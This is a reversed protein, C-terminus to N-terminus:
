RYELRVTPQPDLREMLLQLRSGMQNLLSGFARSQDSWIRPNDSLDAMKAAVKVADYYNGLEDVLGAQLAQRGTMIRGDCVARARAEDMKRGKMVAALFQQYADDISSQLLAREEKTLPRTPNGMDKYTGSKIVDVEVGIKRMLGQVNSAQMVVGISGTITGPDAVIRDAASALYYGGSAAVEGLSAVVKIGKAKCREIETYIEQVAGVTGGPSNIRLLIAKVEDNKSLRHLRKSIADSDKAAFSSGGTSGRIAGEITVVALVGPKKDKKLFTGPLLVVLAVVVSVAYFFAILALFRTRNM